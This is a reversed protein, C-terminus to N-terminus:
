LGFNLQQYGRKFADMKKARRKDGEMTEVLEGMLNFTKVAPKVPAPEKEQTGQESEAPAEQLPIVAEGSMLDEALALSETNDSVIDQLVTEEQTPIDTNAPEISGVAEQHKADSIEQIPENGASPQLILFTDNPYKRKMEEFEQQTLRINGNKDGLKLLVKLGDSSIECLNIEPERSGTVIKTLQEILKKRDEM